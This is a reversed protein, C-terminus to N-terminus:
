GRGIPVGSVIRRIHSETETWRASSVDGGVITPELGFGLGVSVLAAYFGQHYIQILKEYPIGAADIQRRLQLDDLADLSVFGAQGNAYAATRLVNAIDRQRYIDLNM